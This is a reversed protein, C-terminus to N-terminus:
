RIFYPTLFCVGYIWSKPVKLYDAAEQVTLLDDMETIQM